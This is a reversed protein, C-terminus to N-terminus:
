RRNSGRAPAYTGNSSAGSSGESSAAAVGDGNGAASDGSAGASPFGPSPTDDISSATNILSAQGRLREEMERLRQAMTEYEARLRAQERRLEELRGGEFVPASGSAAGAAAAAPVVNNGGGGQLVPKQGAAAAPVGVGMGKVLDAPAPSSAVAKMATDLAAEMSALVAALDDDELASAASAASTAAPVPAAPPVALATASLEDSDSNAALVTPTIVPAAAAAVVTAAPKATTAASPKIAQQAAVVAVAPAPETDSAESSEAERVAAEMNFAEAEFLKATYAEFLERRRQEPLAQCRPDSSVAKRVLAWTSTSTVTPERVEALLATFELEAKQAAAQLAAQLQLEAVVEVFLQQRRGPDAVAELSPDDRPLDARFQEWKSTASVGYRRLAARYGAEAAAAAQEEVKKAAVLYSDFLKRRKPESALALWAAEQGFRSEAQEYSTTSAVPPQAERLLAMFALDLVRQQKKAAEQVEMEKMYREADAKFAAALDGAVKAALGTFGLSSRIVRGAGELLADGSSAGAAVAPPPVLAPTPEPAPPPPPAAPKQQQAPPTSTPRGGFLGGFLGGGRLPSSSRAPAAPSTAQPAAPPAPPPPPAQQQQQPAFASFISRSPSSSRQPPPSSRQTPPAPAAPAAPAAPQNSGFGFISRYGGSSTQSSSRQPAAQQQQAAAAQAQVQEPTASPQRRFLPSPSRPMQQQPQAASQSSSGAKEKGSGGDVSSGSSGRRGSPTGLLRSWFSSGEGESENSKLAAEAAAVAEAVGAVSQERSGSRRGGDMDTPVQGQLAGSASQKAQKYDRDLALLRREMRGLTREAKDLLEPEAEGAKVKARLGRVVLSQRETASAQNGIKTELDTLRNSFREWMSSFMGAASSAAGAAGGGSTSAGTTGDRSGSAVAASAAANARLAELSAKAKDSKDASGRFGPPLGMPNSPTAASPQPASAAPQQQAAPQQKKPGFGFFSFINSAQNATSTFDQQLGALRNQMKDLVKEEQKLVGPDAKGAAVQERLRKVTTTQLETASAQKMIKAELDFLRGTMDRWLGLASGLPDGGGGTTGTGSTSAASATSAAASAAAAKGRGNTGARNSAAAAAPTLDISGGSSRSNTTSGPSSRGSSGSTAPVAAPAAAAAAAELANKIYKHKLAEYASIRPFPTDNVFSVGGNDDVQIHRPALLSQLLDWGLGDNADLLACDRPYLNVGKRWAALDYKYKTGYSANFARLARDTRMSPVAMQLMVIGASWTDFRDPKHKAWLMPSIALKLLGAQKAIHPSDTPMVYQEPPCYNLDLISEEPVYNTGTRLDACAGLDILKFRTVDEAFIINLPKIDRHVLGAAHFAALGEFIHKMVTPVAVPEPVGLDDALARTTDRRRLYYALTKSGEYKWVLWLGATLRVNAESDAVECYGLFDACHGRAVRSAYVNLLHEMQSMEEAGEVRTKVRKLVVRQSGQPTNLQGEFVQGFSGEGMIRQVVLQKPLIPKGKASLGDNVVRLATRSAAAPRAPALRACPAVKRAHLGSRPHYRAARM